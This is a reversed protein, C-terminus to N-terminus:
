LRQMRTRKPLFRLCREILGEGEFADTGLPLHPGHVQLPSCTVPVVAQEPDIEDLQKKTLTEWRRLQPATMSTAGIGPPPAHPSQKAPSALAQPDLCGDTPIEENEM